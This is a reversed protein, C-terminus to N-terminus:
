KKITIKRQSTYLIRVMEYEFPSGTSYYRFPQRHRTDIADIGSFFYSIYNDAMWDSQLESVTGSFFVTDILLGTADRLNSPGVIPLILYPGNGVGYHGLTQGFDEPQELINMKSAPDWLGAVGVTSNITFRTLTIGAAKFKLQLLNNTLNHFSYINDIFNSVLIETNGPMILLYGNVVPLFVYKDLYYNFRYISRNFGEIPDNIQISPRDTGVVKEFTRKALPTDATPKPAISCGGLILLTFITLLLLKTTQNFLNM